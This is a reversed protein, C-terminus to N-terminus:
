SLLPAILLRLDLSLIGDTMPFLQVCFLIGVYPTPFGGFSMGM